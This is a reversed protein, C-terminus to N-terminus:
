PRDSDRTRKDLLCRVVAIPHKRVGCEDNVMLETSRSLLVKRVLGVLWGSRVSDRVSAGGFYGKKRRRAGVVKYLGFM